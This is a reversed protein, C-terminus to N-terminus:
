GIYVEVRKGNDENVEVYFPKEPSVHKMVAIVDDPNTEGMNPIRNKFTRLFWATLGFPVPFSIAINQPREGPRQHVRIHVWHATSSAWALAIVAVGLLFPFWTCAFWFGFGSARYVSYMLLGSLVTIGVGIWLPYRWWGRWKAARPDFSPTAPQDEEEATEEAGVGGASAIPLLLNDVSTEPKPEVPISTQQGQDIILPPFPIPEPPLIEPQSSGGVALDEGADDALAQILKVGEEATIKGSAIMELIQLRENDVSM